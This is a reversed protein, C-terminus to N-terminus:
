DGVAEEPKDYTFDRALKGLKSPSVKTYKQTNAINTHRLFEQAARLNDTQEVLETGFTHRARHPYANRVGVSAGLEKIKAWVTSNSIPRAGGHMPSPFIWRPNPNEARWRILVKRLEPLVPLNAWKNGKGPPLKLVRFDESLFTWELTRCENNRLGSYFLTVAIAETMGGEVRAAALMRKAESADFPKPLTEPIPLRNLGLAANVECFEKHILYAGFGVLASRINNRYSPSSSTLGELMFAMLDKPKAWVVSVQRHERLWNDCMVIRRAYMRTTQPRWGAQGYGWKEFDALIADRQKM